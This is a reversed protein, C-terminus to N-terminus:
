AVEGRWIGRAIRSVTADNINFHAAISANQEGARRRDRISRVDDDSLKAGWHAAGARKTAPHDPGASFTARSRGKTARDRNNEAVTGLFL